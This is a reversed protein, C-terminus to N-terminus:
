KQKNKLNYSVKGAATTALTAGIFITYLPISMTLSSETMIKFGVLYVHVLATIITLLGAARNFSINGNSGELVGGLFKKKCNCCM